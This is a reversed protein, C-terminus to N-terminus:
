KMVQLGGCICGALRRLWSFEAPRLVSVDRCQEVVQKEQLTKHLRWMQCREAMELPSEGTSGRHHPQARAECLRRVAALHAPRCELCDREWHRHMVYRQLATDGRGDHADVDCQVRLLLELCSAHADYPAKEYVLGGLALHLLSQKSEDTRLDRVRADGAAAMLEKLAGPKGTWTTLILVQDTIVARATLLLQTVPVRDSLAGWTLATWGIPNKAEVDSRAELLLRCVDVHGSKAAFMLPTVNNYDTEHVDEPRKQLLKVVEDYAGLECAAALVTRVRPQANPGGGGARRVELQEYAAQIDQFKRTAAERHEPPHKDPHHILALRLYTQRLQIANGRVGDPFLEM